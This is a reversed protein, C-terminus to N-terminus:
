RVSQSFRFSRLGDRRPGQAADDLIDYLILRPVGLAVRHRNVARLWVRVPDLKIVQVQVHVADDM